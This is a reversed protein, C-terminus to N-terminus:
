KYGDIHESGQSEMSLSVQLIRSAPMEFSHIPELAPGVVPARRVSQALKAVM